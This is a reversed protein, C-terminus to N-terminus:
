VPASTQFQIGSAKAQQYPNNNAEYGVDKGLVILLIFNVLSLLVFGAAGTVAHTLHVASPDAPVVFMSSMAVILSM